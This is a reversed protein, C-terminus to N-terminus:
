LKDPSIRAAPTRTSKLSAYGRRVVLGQADPWRRQDEPEDTQKARAFHGQLDAHRFQYVTGVARLLGFTLVRTYVPLLNDSRHSPLDAM